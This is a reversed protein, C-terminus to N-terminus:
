GCRGVNVPDNCYRELCCDVDEQEQECSGAVSYQPNQCPDNLTEFCSILAGLPETCWGNVAQNQYYNCIVQCRDPVFGPCAAAETADCLVMCRDYQAMGEALPDPNTSKWAGVGPPCNSSM